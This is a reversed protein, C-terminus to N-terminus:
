SSPNLASIQSLASAKGLLITVRVEQRGWAKLLIIVRMTTAVMNVWRSMSERIIDELRGRRGGLGVFCVGPKRRNVCFECSRM